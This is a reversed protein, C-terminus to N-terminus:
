ADRKQQLVAEVNGACFILETALALLPSMHMCSVSILCGKAHWDDCVPILGELRDLPRLSNGRICKSSRVRAVTLQDGGTLIYHFNDKIMSISEDSNPCEVEVPTSMTPVYTHLAEMIAIM